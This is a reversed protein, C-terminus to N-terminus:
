WLEELNGGALDQVGASSTYHHYIITLSVSVAKLFGMPLCLSTETGETYARRAEM